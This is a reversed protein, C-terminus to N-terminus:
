CVCGGLPWVLGGVSLGGNARNKVRLRSGPVATVDFAVHITIITRRISLEDAAVADRATPLFHEITVLLFVVRTFLHSRQRKSIQLDLDQARIRRQHQTSPTQFARTVLRM